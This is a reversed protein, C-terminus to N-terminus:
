AKFFERSLERAVGLVIADSSNCEVVVNRCEGEWSFSVRLAPLRYDPDRLESSQASDPAPDSADRSKSVPPSDDASAPLKEARIEYQLAKGQVKERRSVSLGVLLSDESLRWLKGMLKGMWSPGPADIGAETLHDRVERATVVMGAKGRYDALVWLLDALREISLETLERDLIEVRKSM